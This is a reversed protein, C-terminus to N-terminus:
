CSPNYLSSTLRLSNSLFNTSFLMNCLTKKRTICTTIQISETQKDSLSIYASFQRNTKVNKRLM